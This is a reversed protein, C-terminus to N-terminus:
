LAASEGETLLGSDVPAPESESEFKVDLPLRIIFTTGKGSETEFTVTGDHKDMITSRAIALGQGSGKGVDKTTFFPDFIKEQVVPPIGTGSDKIRIEAYRGDKRTTVTITGKDASSKALADGIAHSANIIINLIVQNFEGPLCPVDSLTPDYDTVMDAVYKWENRAVTITSEIAHNINVMTKGVSGPHSFEKMAQVIKAVRGVGELSQNIAQPLDEYLFSLDVQELLDDIETLMDQTVSGEKVSTFLKDYLDLVERIEMMSSSIFDLNDGIFQTPTNIEHAIGAALQGISELKQAQVLQSELNKRDRLDLINALFYGRGGIQTAVMNKLIPIEKKDVTILIQEVSSLAEELICSPDKEGKEQHFFECYSKGIIESNEAGILKRVHSNVQVIQRSEQDILMIGLPSSELIAKLREENERIQQEAIRGEIAEGLMRAIGDLLDREEKIFPGEDKESRKELYFVDISGSKKDHVMIDSTQFWQSEEFQESTIEKDNLCIRCRTIKPYQWGLPVIATVEKFADEVSGGKRISEAVSYLCRLEKMRKRTAGELHEKDAIEKALRKHTAIMEDNLFEFENRASVLETIDTAIGCVAYPEGQDNQIPFKISIYVHEGDDHKIREEFEIPAKSRLVHIDKKRLEDAIVKPWIDHDSKGIIEEETTHFLKEYRKNILIYKGELDKLFVITSTNDLIDRLRNESERLAAESRKSETIDTSIFVVIDVEDILRTTKIRNLFYHPGDPLNVLTEITQLQGTDVARGLTQILADGYEPSAFMSVNKGIIDEEKHGPHVRNVRLITGKTDLVFVFDPSAKALAREFAESERLKEDAHRRKTIDSDIGRYGSIGGDEDLIPTGSTMLCVRRGNKTLNWNELNSFPRKESIIEGFIKGVRDVEEPCMFDFPTKGLMEESTYRLIAEVKKSCYTYRGEADIEWIWDGINEAIGRFRDESIRLEKETRVRDSVDLAVGLLGTIDGAANKVATVALSVTLRTGDKRVYTWLREDHGGRRARAVFVEFGEIPRGFEATLEKGYAVIESELHFIGPSQRGVVEEASYGLMREAGTNFTTILGDSDTAIISVQSSANLLDQFRLYAKARDKEPQQYISRIILATRQSFLITLALIVGFTAGAVELVSHFLLSSRGWDTFLMAFSGACLITLSIVAVIAASTVRCTTTQGSVSGGVAIFSRKLECKGTM